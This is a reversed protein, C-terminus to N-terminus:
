YHFRDDIVADLEPFMQAEVLRSSGESKTWGALLVIYPNNKAGRASYGVHLRDDASVTAALRLQHLHQLYYPILFGIEQRQSLNLLSLAEPWFENRFNITVHM